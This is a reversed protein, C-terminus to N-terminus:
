KWSISNINGLSTTTITWSSPEGTTSTAITGFGNGNVGVAIFKSQDYTIGNWTTGALCGTMTGNFNWSLAGSPNDSYDIKCNQGVAVLRSGGLAVSTPSVPTTNGGFISLGNNTWTSASNDTYLSKVTAIGCGSATGVFIVRSTNTLRYLAGFYGVSTCATGFLVSVPATGFSNGSTSRYLIPPNTGNGAIFYSGDFAIRTYPSSSVNASSNVSFSVGNNNSIYTTATPSFVTTGGTAVLLGKGFTIDNLQSNCTFGTSQTWNIGDSSTYAVCSAGTGGVAIYNTGNHIVKNLNNTGAITKTTWTKGDLTFHVTGASGVAVPTIPTSNIKETPSSEGRSDASTLLYYYTSSNMLGAHTYPSIVGQIRNGNSITFDSNTSWYLHYTAAESVSNWSLVNEANGNLVTFGTPPTASTSINSLSLIILNGLIGGQATDLPSIICQACSVFHLCIWSSIFFKKLSM